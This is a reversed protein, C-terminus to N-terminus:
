REALVRKVSESIPPTCIVKEPHERNSHCHAFCEEYTDYLMDGTYEEQFVPDYGSIVWKISTNEMQDMLLSKVKGM